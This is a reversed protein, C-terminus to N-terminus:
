SQKLHHYPEPVVRCLYCCDIWSWYSKVNSKFLKDDRKRRIYQLPNDKDDEYFGEPISPPWQKYSM